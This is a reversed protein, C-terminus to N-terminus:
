TKGWNQLTTAALNLNSCPYLSKSCLLGGRNINCISHETSMSCGASSAPHFLDCITHIAFFNQNQRKTRFDLVCAIMSKTPTFSLSPHPAQYLGDVFKIKKIGIGLM